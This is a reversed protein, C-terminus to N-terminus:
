SVGAGVGSGTPALDAAKMLAGLTEYRRAYSHHEALHARTALVAEWYKVPNELADSLMAAVKGEDPVLTLAAAGYIDEVFDKPLMLVPITDAYFTEFTRGTVYGLHRFLPRHFVPAFRAGNLLGVVENYGVGDRIEIGEAELFDTDTDVGMIGQEAAWDPRWGWDWGILSAQGAKEAVPSYQELFDRVQHWRQWNSGIYMAGYYKGEDAQWSEAAQEATEYPKVVLAPDFGHFLFSGVDARLPKVTPQLITSSVAKLAEDWEWGLHGDLKELHNFDHKILITENYKGWLDVVMRKAPPITDLLRALGPMDPFDSPVQIVFLALDVDNLDTTYPFDPLDDNGEGFLAVEHGLAEGAKIFSEVSSVSRTWPDVWTVLLLKM